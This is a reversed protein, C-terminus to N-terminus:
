QAGTKTSTNIKPPTVSDVKITFYLTKNALPHPNPIEMLVTTPSDAHEDISLVKYEEQKGNNDITATAGPVFPKGYFPSNTNTIDLTVKDGDIEAIKFTAGSKTTTTGVALEKEFFPSESNNMEVTITKDDRSILKFTTSGQTDIIDGPNKGDINTKVFEPDLTSIDLTQTIKGSLITKDIIDTFNPAFDNYEFTKTITGTGYGKEPM